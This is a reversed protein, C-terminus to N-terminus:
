SPVSACGSLEPTKAVFKFDDSSFRILVSEHSRYKRGHRIVWWFGTSPHYRWLRESLYAKRRDSLSTM